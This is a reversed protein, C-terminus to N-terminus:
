RRTARLRAMLADLPLTNLVDDRGLWARRAQLIGHRHHAFDALSHADNNIVVPIGRERARRAYVENLDLRMPHANIEVFCGRAHIAELIRDLDVEYPDRELLLRGTPHALFSVQPRELARLIRTTQAERNLKFRSHVAVVVVDLRALVDDSFDLSGDELIDVESGSLVQVGLGLTNVRAVDELQEDLRREDLGNAVTLRKSHDTIAIYSWGLAAAQRAMAEISLAGDSWITHNHLDGRLDSEEILRPLKGQEAAEIEGADERQEPPIWPLGLAAFIGEEDAGAVPTEERFVGYENLKLGQQQARRRMAINHAQSGTFYHLAAGYSAAPVLRLDAQIGREFLVSGKTEGQALVRAIGPQATFAAMVAAPDDAVVLLDLDGVTDRGRRYSGAPTVKHVGPVAALTEVIRGVVPEAAARLHRVTTDLRKTVAELLAAELKAGFGPLAQIRGERAAAALDDLTKVGCQDLLTRVRKPGLGPLKLLDPLAPPFEARVKELAPLAGTETMTAIKAAIEKGIGPIGTLDRGAALEAGMEAPHDGLVRAANRYARIKFPNEGKIELLDALAEFQEAMEVNTMAAM